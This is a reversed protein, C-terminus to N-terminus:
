SKMAIDPKQQAASFAELEEKATSLLAKAWLSLADRIPRLDDFKKVGLRTAVRRLNGTNGYRMGLKYAVDYTRKAEPRKRIKKGDWIQRTWRKKNKRVIVQNRVPWGDSHKWYNGAAFIAEAQTLRSRPVKMGGIQLFQQIDVLTSVKKFEESCTKNFAQVRTWVRSMYSQFATVSLVFGLQARIPYTRDTV